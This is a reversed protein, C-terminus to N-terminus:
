EKNKQFLRRYAEVMAAHEPPKGSLAYLATRLARLRPHSPNHIFPM